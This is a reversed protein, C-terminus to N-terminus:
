ARQEGGQKIVNCEKATNGTVRVDDVYIFLDAAIKGDNLRVKSVWHLSSNYLKSGPLNM